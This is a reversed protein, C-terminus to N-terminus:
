DWGMGDWGIWCDVVGVWWGEGVENKTAIENMTKPYKM